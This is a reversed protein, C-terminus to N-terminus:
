LDGPFRLAQRQPFFRLELRNWIWMCLPTLLANYIASPLYAGGFTRWFPIRTELGNLILASLGSEVLSIVFVVVILTWVNRSGLLLAGRWAFLSSLAYSLGYVGLLGHSFVDQALGLLGAPLVVGPGGHWAILIVFLLPFSPKIQGLAIWPAFALQLWM